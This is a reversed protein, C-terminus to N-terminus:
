LQSKLDAFEDLILPERCECLRLAVEVGVANEFLKMERGDGVRRRLWSEGHLM